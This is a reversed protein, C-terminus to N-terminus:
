FQFYIFAFNEVGACAITSFLLVSYVIWRVVGSQNYTVLDFRKYHLLVELIMFIAFMLWIFVPINLHEAVEKPSNFINNFIEFADDNLSPSRFFVWIVSVIAFNKLVLFLIIPRQLNSNQPLKILKSLAHEVLYVFGYLAGWVVFTWNAGHWLGSVVFVLLVNGIWKYKAVRNGGMPYYVYDRFWNTLSIHWRQWFQAINRSFYPTKFNEMLRVGLIRASGLAILSYGYFDGYIQFSYFVLGLILDASAYSEPSKYIADVFPALNDAIVMKVFLGYLILRM